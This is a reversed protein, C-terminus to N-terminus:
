ENEIEKVKYKNAFVLSFQKGELNSNQDKFIFVITDNSDDLMNVYFNNNSSVNLLCNLCIGNYKSQEKIIGEASDYLIGLRVPIQINFDKLLKTNEGKKISIPYDINLAVEKDKIKTNVKIDGQTIAYDPFDIFDKTCFFLKREVYFSIEKEIDQKSPMYNKNDAYYYAIGSDTSFDAPFYYGGGAGTQYVTESGTKMICDQVFGEINGTEFNLVNESKKNALFLILIFVIILIAIVIFVTLQAKRNGRKLM